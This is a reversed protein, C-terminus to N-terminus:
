KRVELEILKRFTFRETDFKQAAQKHVAFRERVEAIVLNHGTTLEGSIDYM